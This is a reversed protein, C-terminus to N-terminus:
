RDSMVVGTPVDFKDAPIAVNEEIKTAVTESKMKMSANDVTTKLAVHSWGYMKVNGSSTVMSYGNCTKGCITEDALKKFQVDKLSAAEDVNFVTAVGYGMAKTKTGSKHEVSCVYRIGDKVFDRKTLTEKGGAADVSYEEQCEKMGYDDFYLVNKSKIIMSGMGMASEFTVIGSKIEYKKHSADTSGGATNSAGNTAAAAKDKASEPTENKNGSCSIMVCMVLLAIATKM